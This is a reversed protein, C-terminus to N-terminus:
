DPAAAESRRAPALRGPPPHCVSCPKYGLAQAQEPSALEIWNEDKMSGLTGCTRTHYHKSKRNGILKQVASQNAKGAALPLAAGVKSSPLDAAVVAAPGAPALPRHDSPSPALVAKLGLALLLAAAIGMVICALSFSLRVPEHRRKLWQDLEDRLARADPYRNQPDVAM